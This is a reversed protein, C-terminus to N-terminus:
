LEEDKKRRAGFVTVAIGALGLIMASLNVVDGTKPSGKSSTPQPPKTPDVPPIAKWHAILKVPGTVPSDFDYLKGDETYWGDFTYGPRTPDKPKVIKEGYKIKQGPVKSGGNSDFDVPYTIIEWQAVAILDTEPMTCIDSPQYFREVWKSSDGGPAVSILYGTFTYGVRDPANDVIVTDGEYFTGGIPLNYVVAITGSQYTISYLKDAVVDQSGDEDDGETASATNTITEGAASANITVTITFVPEFEDTGAP